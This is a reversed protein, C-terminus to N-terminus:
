GIKYSKNKYKIKQETELLEDINLPLLGVEDVKRAPYGVWRPAMQLFTFDGMSIAQQEQQDTM